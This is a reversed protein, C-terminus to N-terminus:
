GAVEEGLLIPASEHSQAWENIIVRLAESRNSKTREAVLDIIDFQEPYLTFASAVVRDRREAKSDDM